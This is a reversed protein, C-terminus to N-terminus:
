RPRVSGRFGQAGATSMQQCSGQGRGQRCRRGQSKRHGGAQGDGQASFGQAKREFGAVDREHTEWIVTYPTLNISSATRRAQLHPKSNRTEPNPKLNSSVQSLLNLARTKDEQAARRAREQRSQAREAKRKAAAKVTRKKDADERDQVGEQPRSYKEAAGRCKLLRSLILEPMDVVLIVMMTDGVRM